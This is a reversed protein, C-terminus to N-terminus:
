EFDNAFISNSQDNDLNTIQVDAPNRGNYAPDSSSAPATIITYIVDGDVVQDDVGRVTVSRQAQWDQPTFVLTGQALTGETLDSSSLTLTVAATPGHTLRVTVTATGGAESTQRPPIAGVRIDPGEGEDDVNSVQVDPANLGNYGADSSSAPATVISYLIDGDNLNDDVGTVTVTQPLNWNGPTFTLSTPSVSGETTDSSSLGLTVNATPQSNLRVTFSATGGTETTVLGSTPSVTIGPTANSRVYV